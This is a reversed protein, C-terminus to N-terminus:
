QNVMLMLNVPSSITHHDLRAPRWRIRYAAAIAYPNLLPDNSSVIRINRANGDRTVDLKLHIMALEPFSFNFQDSLARIHRPHHLVRVPTVGTTIPNHQMSTVADIAPQSAVATTAFALPVLLLSVVLMSRM